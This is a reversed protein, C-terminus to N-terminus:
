RRRLVRFKTQAPSLETIGSLDTATIQIRHPGAKVKTKFPSGCPKPRRGDLQCRFSSRESSRFRVAARSSRTAKLPEAELTTNPPQLDPPACTALPCLFASDALNWHTALYSGGPPSPNFYDDKNCDWAQLDAGYPDSPLSLDGDCNPDAFLSGSGGDEYCMLDFQDNCHGAGSSNPASFQVAGLNHSLEHLGIEVQLRSTTGAPFGATSGFFDSGGRGYLVAFMGGKNHTPAGAPTDSVGPNVFAEAEGGIGAPTVMDAYILFDRPSGQPGLRIFVDQAVKKFAQNAPSSYYERAQPLAVRQIDLCHAGEYTGIDFRTSLSGGSESTVFESITKVGAQIVPGYIGIRNGVNAPYAYIVKIVHGGGEHPDNARDDASSGVTPCLTPSAARSGLGSVQAPEGAGAEFEAVPDGHREVELAPTGVSQAIVQESGDVHHASAPAAIGLALALAPAALRFGRTRTM